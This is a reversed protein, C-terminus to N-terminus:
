LDFRITAGTLKKCENTIIIRYHFLYEMKAGSHALSFPTMPIKTHETVSDHGCGDM